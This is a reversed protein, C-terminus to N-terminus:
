VDLEAGEVDMKLLDIRPVKLQSVINDLINVEVV